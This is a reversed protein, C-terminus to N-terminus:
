EIIKEVRTLRGEENMGELVIRLRRSIDNNYFTVTVRKNGADTLVYPNWLLTSRVDDVDRLTAEKSYDPSFFEKAPSYGALTIKDMGGSAAADYAKSREDGKRTYVAIAGGAGGGSAGFFPPRLVKVYAIDSVPTSQLMSADVPMENLFLAPTSQRWSLSVDGGSRNIQLGAVRGQLYQFIDMSSMAVPDDIMDFTYGDGGKFMGSAYKDELQQEKSRSKAKITVAELTKIKKDLDPRIRESESAFFRNRSLLSTDLPMPIRWGSDAKVANYGRLTGNDFTVVAKNSLKQDKNFQYYVKVTDFFILGREAFKGDPRKNLTFFQRASDKTEIFVNLQANPPIQSPLLGTINANLSLYNDRPYKIEPLKGAALDDWKFRRWGNTLMVLDLHSRTTDDNGLFYYYPNHVYGKLEGCLLLRSIINDEDPDTKSAGADTIAISMNSKLTDPVEIVIENKARKGLGKITPVVKAQFSYDEKNIFVIREALAKWNGDFLTLQLTGTPFGSLPIAGSTMFSEALNLRAKYVVQSNFYALLHLTKLNDPPNASRRVSFSQTNNIQQTRLVAGTPLISPLPTKYSQKKDDQWEATYTEGAQPELVIRGMGDHVSSFPAVVNGKSDKVVGSVEVPIGFKDTAKYAIVSELGAVLDGGEPFFNILTALKPPVTTAAVAKRPITINKTYIFGTDFNLMWTTYARFVISTGAYTLPLDFSGATSSEFVPVLKRQLVKGNAPDVLEAYFNKSVVSPLIGAFLYAKFWITEGPNYVPKDFHVHIKEQPYNEGYVNLMSDIKQAQVNDQLLLTFTLIAAFCTLIRKM